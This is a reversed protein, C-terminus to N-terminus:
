VMPLPLQEDDYHPPPSLHATIRGAFVCEANDRPRGADAILDRRVSMPLEDLARLIATVLTM